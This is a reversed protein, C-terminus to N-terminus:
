PSPFEVWLSGNGNWGSGTASPPINGNARTIPCKDVDLIHRALADARRQALAVSATLSKNQSTVKRVKAKLVFTEQRLQALTKPPSSAGEGLPLGVASVALLAFAVLVPVRTM